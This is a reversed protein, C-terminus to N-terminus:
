GSVWSEDADICGVGLGKQAERGQAKAAASDGINTSYQQPTNSTLM